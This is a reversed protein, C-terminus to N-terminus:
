GTAQVRRPVRLPPIVLTTYEEYHATPLGSLPLREIRPADIPLQAAEYLVVEHDAPYWRLLKAVLAELGEPEAHLRTCSLDGALTVQWLLVLAATDPEREHILFHTAELSQVGRLGPDVGLDAYLCAEASIGPEMRAPLGLERTKRVVAHPVDAFVGPHGYFVACVQRGAEVEAMIAADIERYTERRDKGPAYHMGLNVADPRFGLIMGLAFPDVLCFVVEAERIESLTRESAHRGFQIGSGVVVLSGRPGEDQLAGEGQARVVRDRGGHKARYLAQDANHILQELTSTSGDYQCVGASLNFSFTQGFVTVPGIRERLRQMLADADAASGELLITFEDGGSRGAIGDNGVVESIWGGLCRLAEDGAAHGHRDNVQKFLDIDAIIATFPRNGQRARKFAESGRMRVQQYNFLGTLGDRESQRRYRGRERSSHRLLLLLLLATAMLGFIGLGLLWQRRQTATVQLAALEKEAELLAIQQEKLRTDFEVQLYALRRERSEREAVEQAAMARQLHTLAGANDGRQEALRALLRETEAVALETKQGRYYELTDLLLSEARRLDRDLAILNGAMELRASWSGATFGAAEFEALAQRSWELAEEPRGQAAVMKGVGYKANAVFVLDGAAQCAELQQRRWAEAESFNGAHDEAMALDAIALCRARADGGSEVADLGQRALDRAKGIEGVLTHLYSAVGLLAPASEPADPLYELGESLWGFARPWDEVNAAISIATTYARVRQAPSIEQQQLLRAFGELAAPERGALGLNRLRVFEVRARQEPSLEDLRTALDDVKRESERWHASISLQEIEAVQAELADNAFARPGALVLLLIAVIRVLRSM